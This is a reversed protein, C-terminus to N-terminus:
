AKRPQEPSVETVMGLETVEMPEDAKRPQEPSVETVMGLETVEMPSRAKVPQKPSVETVNLASFQVLKEKLSQVFRVDNVIPSFTVIIGLEAKEPQEPSEETVM